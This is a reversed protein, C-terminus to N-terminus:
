KVRWPTVVDQDKRRYYFVDMIPVITKGDGDSKSTLDLIEYIDKAGDIFYTPAVRFNEDQGDSYTTTDTYDLYDDISSLSRPVYYGFRHGGPTEHVEFGPPESNKMFTPWYPRWTDLPHTDYDAFLNPGFNSGGPVYYPMFPCMPAPSKYQWQDSPTLFTWPGSPVPYNWNDFNLYPRNSYGIGATAPVTYSGSGTDTSQLVGKIYVTREYTWSMSGPDFATISCTPMKEIVADQAKIDYYVPWEASAVYSTGFVNDVSSNWTNGDFEMELDMHMSTVTANHMNDHDAPFAGSGEVKQLARLTCYKKVDNTDYTANLTITGLDVWMGWDLTDSSMLQNAGTLYTTTVAPTYVTDIGSGDKQITMGNQFENWQSGAGGDTVWTALWKRGSSDISIRQRPFVVWREHTQASPTGYTDYHTKNTQIQPEYGGAVYNQTSGPVVMGEIPAQWDCQHEKKDQTSLATFESPNWIKGWTPKKGNKIMCYVFTATTDHFDTGPEGWSDNNIWCFLWNTGTKSDQYVSAAHVPMPTLYVSGNVFVENIGDTAISETIIGVDGGPHGEYHVMFKDDASRWHATTKYYKEHQRQTNPGGVGLYTQYDSWWREVDADPRYKVPDGEKKLLKQSWKQKTPSLIDPSPLLWRPYAPEQELVTGRNVGDEKILNGNADNYPPKWGYARKFYYGGPWETWLPRHLDRADIGATDYYTHRYQRAHYMWGMYPYVIYGAYDKEKDVEKPVYIHCNIVGHHKQVLIKTGDVFNFRRTVLQGGRAKRVPSDLTIGILTRAKTRLRYAASVNGRHDYVFRVSGTYRGM